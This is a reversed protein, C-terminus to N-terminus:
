WDNQKDVTVAKQMSSKLDAITGEGFDKVDQFFQADYKKTMHYQEAPLEINQNKLVFDTISYKYRQDRTEIRITFHLYGAPVNGAWTILDPIKYTGKGILIHAQKDDLQIVEQADKFMEAFWIRAKLYLQDANASDVKVVGTYCFRDTISDRPIDIQQAHSNLGFLLIGFILITKKM